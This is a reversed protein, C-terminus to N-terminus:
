EGLGDAIAKTMTRMAEEEDEGDCILEIEDGKKICAGLVSLVSKANATTNGYVFTVKFKFSSATNCFIGAPRLNLGTPNTITVKQKVM